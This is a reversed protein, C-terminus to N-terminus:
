QPPPPPPLKIIIPGDKDDIVKYDSPVTFLSSDPESTSVNTFRTTLEGAWPDNHKTMVAVKLEPSYWRESTIVIPKENGMKGAPITTTVRTGTAHIGDITQDGLNETNPAPAGSDEGPKNVMVQKFFFVNPGAPGGGQYIMMREGKPPVGADGAPGGNPPLPMRQAIKNNSDLLYRFGAVPDVVTIMKPTSIQPAAGMLNLTAERRTRGESDRCLLSSDTTHIRNGDALVQTHETTVTACFPAGKVPAADTNEVRMSIAGPKAQLAVGQVFAPDPPMQAFLSAAFLFTASFTVIEIKGHM